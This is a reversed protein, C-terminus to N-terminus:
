KLVEFRKLPGLLQTAYEEAEGLALDIFVPTGYRQGELTVKAHVFTKFPVSHPGNPSLHDFGYLYKIHTQGNSPKKECRLGDEDDAANRFYMRAAEETEFWEPVVKSIIKWHGKKASADIVLGREVMVNKPGFPLGEHVEDIEEVPAPLSGIYISTVPNQATRRIGRARNAQEVQGHCKAKLVAYAIPDPHWETMTKLGGIEIPRKPYWGLPFEVCRRAVPSGKTVEAELEIVDPHPMPRGVIMQFRVGEFDNIGALANFHGLAINDPVLERLQKEIDLQCVVLGDIGDRGEGRHKTAYHHIAAVVQKFLVKGEGLATKTAKVVYQIVQEHEAKPYMKESPKLRSWWYRLVEPSATASLILTRADAYHAHIHKKLRVTVAIRSGERKLRCGLVHQQRSRLIAKLLRIIKLGRVACETAAIYREMQTATPNIPLGGVGERVQEHLRKIAAVVEDSNLDVTFAGYHGLLSSHIGTLFEDGNALEDLYLPM